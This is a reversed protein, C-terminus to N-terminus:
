TGPDKGIDLSCIATPLWNPVVPLVSTIAETIVEIYLILLLGGHPVPGM